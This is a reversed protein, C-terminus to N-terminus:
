ADAIRQLAAGSPCSSCGRRAFCQIERTVIRGVQFMADITEDLPLHNAFGGLVLEACLIASSATAANRTHCPIEVVGQVPDCILGMQNQFMIAAANCAQSASGGAMEVVAASAMAGAATVEAQCGAANATFTARNAIVIGVAGAAWLGRLIAEPGLVAEESLTLVAAPVIGAAGATPAAVIVGSGSSVELVAMARAAARGHAGGIPLRHDKESAFLKGASPKLLQMPPLDTGLGRNMSATMLDWRQALEADVAEESCGLLRAEYARGAAGLSCGQRDAWAVLESASAGLPSGSPVHFVPEATYVQHV